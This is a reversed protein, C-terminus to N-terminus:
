ALDSWALPQDVDIDVIATKGILKNCHDPSIGVHPRKFLLMERNIKEGKKIQKGAVVCRRIGSIQDATESIVKESSGRSLHAARVGEVISKLINPDASLAHDLGESANDLTFHKEIIEAGLAVAAIPLPSGLSHDSFGVATGFEKKLTEIILLNADVFELPYNSVCHLLAIQADANENLICDIAVRCDDLTAGGTSMIVPKHTAAFARILPLHTIDGSAVKYAPCQLNEMIHLSEFDFVSAFITINKEAAADFLAQYQAEDFALSSFESYYKSARTLFKEPVFAQLKVAHAGCKAAAAILQVAKGVSGNHNIGIEAIVYPAQGHGIKVGDIEIISM